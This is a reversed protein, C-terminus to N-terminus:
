FQQVQFNNSHFAALEKEGFISSSSKVHAREFSCSLQNHGAMDTGQQVVHLFPLKEKRKSSGLPWSLLPCVLTCTCSDGARVKLRGRTTKILPINPPSPLQPVCLSPFRPRPQARAAACPSSQAGRKTMMPVRRARFVCTQRSARNKPLVPCVLLCLLFPSALNSSRRPCPAPRM